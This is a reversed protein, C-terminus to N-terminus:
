MCLFTPHSSGLGHGGLTELVTGSPSNSWAIVKKASLFPLSKGAPPDIAPLLPTMPYHAYRHLVDPSKSITAFCQDKRQKKIISSVNPFFNQNHLFFNM